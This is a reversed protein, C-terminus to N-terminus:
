TREFMADFLDLSFPRGKPKEVPLPKGLYVADMARFCEVADTADDPDTVGTEALWRAISAAPLPGVSMGVQRDTSLEWFASLLAEGGPAVDPPWLGEPIPEGSADHREM